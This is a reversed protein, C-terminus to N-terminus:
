ISVGEFLSGYRSLRAKVGLIQLAHWFSAQNASIVPKGLDSELMGIVDITAFHTCSIFVCDARPTDVKRGLQYALGVPADALQPVIDLGIANVVEFGESELFAKGLGTIEDDYPTGLAVKRANFARLAAVVATTATTTAIGTKKRIGEIIEGDWGPGGVFSGSTCGYVIVGVNAHALESVVTKTALREMDLLYETTIDGEATVELHMRTCHIGLGPIEAALRNFEPEM